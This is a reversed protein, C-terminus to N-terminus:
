LAHVYPLFQFAVELLTNWIGSRPAPEQQLFSLFNTATQYYLDLDWFLALHSKM